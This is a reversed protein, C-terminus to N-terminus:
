FFVGNHKVQGVLAEMLALREDRSLEDAFRNAANEVEQDFESEPEGEEECLNEALKEVMWLRQQNNLNQFFEGWSERMEKLLSSECSIYYGIPKM